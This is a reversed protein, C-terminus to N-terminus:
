LNPVHHHPPPTDTILFILDAHNFIASMPETQASSVQQVCRPPLPESLERLASRLKHSRVYRRYYVLASLLALVAVPVTVGVLISALSGNKATSSPESFGAATTSSTALVSTTGTTSTTSTSPPTSAAFIHEPPRQMPFAELADENPPLPQLGLLPGGELKYQLAFSLANISEV